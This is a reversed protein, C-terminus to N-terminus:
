DSNEGFKIRVLLYGKSLKEGRDSLLEIQAYGLNTIDNLWAFQAFLSVFLVFERTLVVLCAVKM